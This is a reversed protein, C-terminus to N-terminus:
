SNLKKHICMIYLKDKIEPKFVTTEVRDFIEFGLRQYLSETRKTESSLVEGFYQDIGEQRLLNEFNKLMRRGLDGGQYNKEFNLHLNTHIGKPHKPIEKLAKFLSWYIMQRTRKHNAYAGTILKGLGKLAIKILAKQQFKEFDKKLSGSLYGVVKNSDEAIFTHEPEYDLYPTIILDAFLERDKFISDIPEGWFGTDACIRKVNARDSQSYARIAVTDLGM